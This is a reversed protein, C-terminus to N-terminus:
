ASSESKANIYEREDVIDYAQKIIGIEYKEFHHGCFFLEGTMFKACVWAQAPCGSSDCRHSNNLVRDDVVEQDVETEM